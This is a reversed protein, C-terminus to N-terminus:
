TTMLLAAQEFLQREFNSSSPFCLHVNCQFTVTGEVINCHLKVFIECTWSPFIVLYLILPM